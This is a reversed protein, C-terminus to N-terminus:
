KATSATQQNDEISVVELEFILMANPGIGNVIKEGYGLQPPIFLQWKSGVPMM